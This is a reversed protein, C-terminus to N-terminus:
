HDDRRKTDKVPEGDEGGKNEIAFEFGFISLQKTYESPRLKIATVVDLDITIKNVSNNNDLYNVISKLALTNITNGTFDIDRISRNSLLNELLSKINNKDQDLGKLHSLSISSLLPYTMLLESLLLLGRDTIINGSFDLHFLQDEHSYKSFLGQLGLVCSDGLGAYSFTLDVLPTSIPSSKSSAIQDFVNLLVGDNIKNKVLKLTHMKDVSSKLIAELLSEMTMEDFYNSELHVSQLGKIEEFFEILRHAGDPSFIINKLTVETIPMSRYNLQRIFYADSYLNQPRLHVGLSLRAPNFTSDIAPYLKNLKGKDAIGDFYYEYAEIWAKVELLERRLNQGDEDFLILLSDGNNRPHLVLMSKGSHEGIGLKCNKLDVWGSATSSSSGFWFLRFEYIAFVRRNITLKRKHFKQAKMRLYPPYKYFENPTRPTVKLLDDEGTPKPDMVVPRLWMSRIERLRDVLNSEVENRVQARQEQVDNQLNWGGQEDLTDFPIGEMQFPNPSNDKITKVYARLIYQRVFKKFFFISYPSLVDFNMLSFIPFQNSTEFDDDEMIQDTTNGQIAGTTVGRPINRQLKILANKTQFDVFNIKVPNSLLGFSSKEIKSIYQPKIVQRPLKRGALNSQRITLILKNTFSYKKPENGRLISQNTSFKAGGLTYFVGIDANLGELNESNTFYWELIKSTDSDLLNTKSLATIMGFKSKNGLKVDEFTEAFHEDKAIKDVKSKTLGGEEIEFNSLKLYKELRQVHNAYDREAKEREEKLYKEEEEDDAKTSVSGRLAAEAKFPNNIISNIRDNRLSEGNYSIRDLLDSQDRLTFLEKCLVDNSRIMGKMKESLRAKQFAKQADM